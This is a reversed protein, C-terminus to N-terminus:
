ITKHEQVVSEVPLRVLAAMAVLQPLVAEVEVAVTPHIPPQVVVMIEKHLLQVQLIAQVVVLMIRVEVEEQDAPDAPIALIVEEVAVM